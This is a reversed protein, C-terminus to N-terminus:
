LYIFLIKKNSKKTNDKAWNALACFFVVLGL